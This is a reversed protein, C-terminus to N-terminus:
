SYIQKSKESVTSYIKGYWECSAHYTYNHHRWFLRQIWYIPTNILSHWINTQIHYNFLLLFLFFATNITVDGAHTTCVKWKAAIQNLLCNGISLLPFTWIFLPSAEEIDETMNWIEHFSCAFQQLMRVCVLKQNKM